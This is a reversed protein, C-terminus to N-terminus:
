EFFSWIQIMPKGQYKIWKEKISTLEANALIDKKLNLKLGAKEAAKLIDEECHPKSSLHIEEGDQNKFHVKNM